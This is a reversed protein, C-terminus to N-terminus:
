KPKPVLSNFGVGPVAAAAAAAQACRLQAPRPWGFPSAVLNEHGESDEARAPAVEAPASSPRASAGGQPAARAEGYAGARTCARFLVCSGCPCRAAALDLRECAATRQQPPAPPTPAQHRHGLRWSGLRAYGRRPPFAHDASNGSSLAAKVMWESIMSQLM